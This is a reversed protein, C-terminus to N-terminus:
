RSSSSPPSEPEAPYKYRIEGPSLQQDQKKLEEEIRDPDRLLRFNDNNLEDIEVQLQHITQQNRQFEQYRDVLAKLGSPGALSWGATLFLVLLALLFGHRWLFRTLAHAPHPAEGSHRVNGRAQAAFPQQSRDVM